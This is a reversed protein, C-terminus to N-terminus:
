SLHWMKESVIFIFFKLIESFTRSLAIGVFNQVGLTYATMQWKKALITKGGNKAAMKSNIHLVCFHMPFPPLYPSKLSIKPGCPIITSDDTVRELFYKEAFCNKCAHHIKQVFPFFMYFINMWIEKEGAFCYETKVEVIYLYRYLSEANFNVSKAVVYLNLKGQIGINYICTNIINSRQVFKEIIFTVM